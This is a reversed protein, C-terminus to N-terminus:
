RSVPKRNKNVREVSERKRAPQNHWTFGYLFAFLTILLFLDTM